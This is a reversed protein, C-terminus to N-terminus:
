CHEALVACPNHLFNAISHDITVKSKEQASVVFTDSNSEIGNIIIVELWWKKRSSTEEKECWNRQQFNRGAKEVSDKTTREEWKQLGRKSHKREREAVRAWMM